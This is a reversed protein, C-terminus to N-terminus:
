EAPRVPLVMTATGTCHDGMNVAVEYQIDVLHQGAQEYKRTVRGTVTFTDGPHCPMGLHFKMRKIDGEPGSWDTLYRGLYGGTTINNMIIDKLGAKQAFRFDHHLPYFDRTAIAGAIITTATVEKVLVPLAEGESVDEWYLSSHTM